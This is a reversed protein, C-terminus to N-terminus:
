ELAAFTFEGIEKSEIESSFPSIGGWRTTYENFADIPVTRRNARAFNLIGVLKRWRDEITGCIAIGEAKSRPFTSQLRKRGKLVM